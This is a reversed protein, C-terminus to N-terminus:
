IKRYLQDSWVYEVLILIELQRLAASVHLLDLGVIHEMRSIVGCSFILGAWECVQQREARTTAGFLFMVHLPLCAWRLLSFLIWLLLHNEGFNFACQWFLQKLMKWQKGDRKLVVCAIEGLVEKWNLLDFVIRGVASSGWLCVCVCSEGRGGDGGWRERRIEGESRMKVTSLSRLCSGQPRCGEVGYKQVVFVRWLAPVSLLAGSIVPRPQRTVPQMKLKSGGGGGRTVPRNVCVPASAEGVPSGDRGETADWRHNILLMSKHRPATALDCLVPSLYSYVPQSLLNRPYLIVLCIVRYM